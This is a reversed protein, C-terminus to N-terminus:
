RSVRVAYLYVNPPQSFKSGTHMSWGIEDHRSHEHGGPLLM